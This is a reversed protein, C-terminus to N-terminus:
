WCVCTCVNVCESVGEAEYVRVCERGCVTM